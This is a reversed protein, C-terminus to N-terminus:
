FSRFKCAKQELIRKKLLLSMGESDFKGRVADDPIQAFDTLM